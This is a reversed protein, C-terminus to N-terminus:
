VGLVGRVRRKCAKKFVHLLTSSADPLPKRCLLRRLHGVAEKCVRAEYTRLCASVVISGCKHTHTHTHTHTRANTHTHTHM